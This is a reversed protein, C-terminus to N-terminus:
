STEDDSEAETLLRKGPVGVITTRAPVDFLAVSGAGIRAFDGVTVRPHVAAHAGLFVGRGLRVYGTLDCHPSLTCGEGVVVDHGVTSALNLVTHAGLVVDCSVIVYPCVCVGEGIRVNRSVISSDHILTQFSAGRQRLREVVELKDRPEGVAVLFVDHEQIVYGDITGLIPETYGHDTLTEPGDTLFGAFSWDQGYGACRPLWGLVERGFGGAGVIILRKM